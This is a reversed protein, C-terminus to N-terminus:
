KGSAGVTDPNTEVTRPHWFRRIIAKGVDGSSWAILVGLQLWGIVNQFSTYLPAQSGNGWVFAIHWFVMSIYLTGILKQAINIPHFVRLILYAAIVDIAFWQVSPTPDLSLEASMTGIMGSGIMVAWVKLKNVPWHTATRQTLMLALVFIMAIYWSM